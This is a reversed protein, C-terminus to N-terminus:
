GDGVGSAAGLAWFPLYRMLKRSANADYPGIAGADVAERILRSATASNKRAIGFRKRVSANTMDQRQVYRLCAHLYCARIRDERAMENLPQHAFLTVKTAGEPTEFLPAPLQFLEAQFVVKDIGSGREECVGIRRLMSALSENRSRPPSDLFRDTRVIPVGPNTVEIRGDFIEVMPGAGTVSFDQHILANAVVERVALEPFMPVTRRLAAGMVENSPLLGNIYDILGEFGAAYGKGGTQEKITEIRGMGHYQIVRMAKRRLTPFANLDRAFLVAGLNTIQFHAADDSTALGDSALAELIQQPGAPLPLGLLTFYSPYNILELVQDGSLGDAAVGAEFPIQDFIRWLRREKGPHEKLKKKYSGVRIFEVSKFRVPQRWARDVELMVVRRGEVEVELFRFDIKPDMLHLLWNELEENGVKRSHPEFTTGVVDHSGDEVGWVIYGCTKGVLAAANAIASIYEGVDEPEARSEKFEVWETEKPLARLEHVLTRLYEPSRNPM